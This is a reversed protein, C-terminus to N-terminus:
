ILYLLKTFKILFRHCHNMIICNRLLKCLPTPQKQDNRVADISQDVGSIQFVHDFSIQDDEKEVVKVRSLLDLYQAVQLERTSIQGFEDNKLTVKM